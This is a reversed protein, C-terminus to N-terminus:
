PKNEMIKKLFEESNSINKIMGRNSNFERWDPNMDYTKFKRLIENLVDERTTPYPFPLSEPVWGCIRLRQMDPFLGMKIKNARIYKSKPKAYGLLERRFNDSVTIKKSVRFDNRLEYKFKVFDLRTWLKPLNIECFFMKRIDPLSMDNPYSKNSKFINMIDLFDHINPVVPINEKDWDILGYGLSTKAGLFGFRRIFDFVFLIIPLSVEDMFLRPFLSVKFTGTYGKPFYYVSTGGNRKYYEKWKSNTSYPIKFEKSIEEIQLSFTRAWGTTGFVYCVPCLNKRADELTKIEMDKDLCSHDKDNPDCAQYGLSRCIAEFWWRLNGIIATAQVKEMESSNKSATWLPTMTRVFLEDSYKKENINQNDSIM